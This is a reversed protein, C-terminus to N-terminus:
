SRLGVKARSRRTVSGSRPSRNKRCNQDSAILRPTSTRSLLVLVGYGVVRHRIATGWNATGSAWVAELTLFLLLLIGRASRDKNVNARMAALAGWVLYIRFSSEAVGVVDIPSRIEWPMPSFLYELFVIPATKLFQSPSSLDLLVPFSSRAVSVKKAYNEVYELGSGTTLQQLAQSKGSLSSIIRSGGFGVAAFAVILWAIFIAPRASVAWLTALPVVALIYPAFGKHFLILIVSAIWITNSTLTLGRNRLHILGYALLLFGFQQYPERLTVSTNLLNSPLLGFALVQFSLAEKCRLEDGLYVFVILSLSFVVQGLECGILLSGGLIDYFLKLFGVYFHREHTLELAEANFRLSDESVTPLPSVFVHFFVLAQKISLVLLIAWVLRSDRRIRESLFPITFSLLILFWGSVVEM